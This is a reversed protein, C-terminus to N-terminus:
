LRPKTTKDAAVAPNLTSAEIITSSFIWCRCRLPLPTVIIENCLESYRGALRPAAGNMCQSPFPSAPTFLLASKKNFGCRETIVHVDVLNSVPNHDAWQPFNLEECSSAISVFRNLAASISVLGSASVSARESDSNSCPQWHQWHASSCRVANCEPGM